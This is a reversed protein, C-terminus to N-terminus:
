RDEAKARAADEERLRQVKSKTGAALNVQTTRLYTLLQRRMRESTSRHEESHGLNNMELPDSEMDFLYEDDDQAWWKYRDNRAMIDYPPLKGIESLVLNRARKAKGSAIALLSVAYRNPSMEGGIADVITPYVDMSQAIAKTRGAEVHKPWRIVLPVRVSEEYFKGKTLAGHSGMMEGHDATFVVLTNDWTGRKQMAEVLRGVHDDVLAIKGLYNALMRRVEPPEINRKEREFTEPVNAPLRLSQPNYMSAYRGPADLPPHPSHFSVVLCMPEDVPQEGIYDIAANAVFTDHYDEPAVVSARPEFEWKVYRERLDEAVTKLLGRSELYEAYPNHENPSSPPGSINVVYDLGLAKEYDDVSSFARRWDPGSYWHLKGIQATSYGARKIDQFMTAADPSVHYGNVNGWIEHGANHPYLGTIMSVRAPMCVPSPTYCADFIKGENAIRDLNPTRVQDNEWSLYRPSWQDCLVVLVDPKDSRQVGTEKAAGEKDAPDVTTTSAMSEENPIAKRWGAHLTKAMRAVLTSRDEDDALNENEQPDTKQDYLERGIPKGEMDFWENYRYRETRVSYGIGKNGRRTYESFVAKKWIRDPDGMLPAFSSGELHESLPLGCCEALTPYIDVLEVLGRSRQGGAKGPVRAILPVRTGLEFNTMKTWVDNEGLHYGHDGWFVVITDDALKLRDLEDLVRGVQADMYTVCARYGQILRRAMDDTIPGELTVSGYSRLEYWDHGAIAPAGRPLYRNDPLDIEDLPYLDFYKKPCCYPLHPKHFGVALFFPQDKVRGLTEIARDAVSTDAYADDPMDAGEYPPGRRAAKNDSQLGAAALVKPRERIIQESEKTYWSKKGPAHEYSPESWALPDDTVEGEVHYIKGISATHYGHNKFHQPLTVVDPMMTRLNINNAVVKTTGPRCGSLM